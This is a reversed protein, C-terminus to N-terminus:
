SRTTVRGEVALVLSRLQHTITSSPLVALKKLCNELYWHRRAALVAKFASQKVGAITIAITEELSSEGRFYSEYSTKVLPLHTLLLRCVSNVKGEKLDNFSDKEENGMVDLIDDTFQFLAGFSTMFDSSPKVLERNALQPGVSAAWRFLSATKLSCIEDLTTQEPIKKQWEFQLCEGRVLDKLTRCLATTIAPHNQAAVQEVADSLLYDGVLVPLTNGFKSNATPGGRRHNSQDIVDDHLLSATHLAEVAWAFVDLEEPNAGAMEGFWYVLHPRLRKGKRQWLLTSVDTISTLSESNWIGPHKDLKNVFPQSRRFAYALDSPIM